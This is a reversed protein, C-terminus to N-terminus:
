LENGTIDYYRAVEANWADISLGADIFPQWTLAEAQLTTLLETQGATFQSVFRLTRGCTQADEGFCRLFARAIDQKEANTLPM